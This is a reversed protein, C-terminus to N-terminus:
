GYINLVAILGVVAVFAITINKHAEKDQEAVVGLFLIAAAIGLLFNTTIMNNSREYLSPM